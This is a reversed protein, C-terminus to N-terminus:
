EEDWLSFGRDERSMADGSNKPKDPNVPTTDQESSVFQMLENEMEVAWISPKLYNKKM